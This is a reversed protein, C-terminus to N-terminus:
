WSDTGWLTRELNISQVSLALFPNVKLGGATEVGEVKVNWIFPRARVHDSRSREQGLVRKRDGDKEVIEEKLKLVETTHVGQWPQFGTFYLDTTANIYRKWWYLPSFVSGTINGLTQIDRRHIGKEALKDAIIRLNVVHWSEFDPVLNSLPTGQILLRGSFGHEPRNLLGNVLDGGREIAKAQGRELRTFEVRPFKPKPGSPDNVFRPAFLPSILAVFLAWVFVAAIIQFTTSNFFEVVVEPQFWGAVVLVAIFAALIIYRVM